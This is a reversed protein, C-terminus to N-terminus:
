PAGQAIRNILDIARDTHRPSGNAEDPYVVFYSGTSDLFVVCTTHVAGSPRVPSPDDRARSVLQELKPAESAGIPLQETSDNTHVFVTPKDKGNVLYAFYYSLYSDGLFFLGSSIQRPPLAISDSSWSELSSLCGAKVGEGLSSHALASAIGAEISGVSRPALSTCGAVTAALLWIVSVLIGPTRM